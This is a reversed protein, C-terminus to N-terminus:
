SRLLFVFSPSFSLLFVSRLNLTKNVQVKIVLPVVLIPTQNAVSCKSKSFSLNLDVYVIVEKSKSKSFSLNLYTVNALNCKSKSFSLNLDVYVIVEKSNSKSFSLNLGVYM